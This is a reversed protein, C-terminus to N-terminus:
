ESIVLAFGGHQIEIMQLALWTWNQFVSLTKCLVVIVGLNGEAQILNAALIKVGGPCALRMLLGPFFFLNKAKHCPLALCSLACLPLFAGIDM